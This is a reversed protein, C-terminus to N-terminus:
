TIIDSANFNAYSKGNEANSLLSFTHSDFVVGYSKNERSSYEGLEDATGFRADIKSLDYQGYSDIWIKIPIGNVRITFFKGQAIKNRLIM